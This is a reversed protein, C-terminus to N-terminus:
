GLLIFERRKTSSPFNRSPWSREKDLKKNVEVLQWGIVGHAKLRDLVLKGIWVSGGLEAIHVLDQHGSVSPGPEHLGKVRELILPVRIRRLLM